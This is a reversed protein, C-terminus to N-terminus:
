LSSHNIKRFSRTFTENAFLTSLVTNQAINGFTSLISKKYFDLKKHIFSDHIFRDTLFFHIFSARGRSLKLDAVQPATSVRNPIFSNIKYDVVCVNQKFVSPIKM